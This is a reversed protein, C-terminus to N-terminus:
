PAFVSPAREARQDRREDSISSNPNRPVPRAHRASRSIAAARERRAQERAGARAGASRRRARDPAGRERAPDARRPEQERGTETLM